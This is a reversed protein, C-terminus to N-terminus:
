RSQVPHGTCTVMSPLLLPLLLPRDPSRFFLARLPVVAISYRHIRGACRRGPKPSYGKKFPPTILPPLPLVSQPPLDFDMWSSPRRCQFPNILAFSLM